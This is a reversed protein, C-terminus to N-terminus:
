KASAAWLQLKKKRCVWEDPVVGGGRPGAHTARTQCVGKKKKESDPTSAHPEFDRSFIVEKTQDM